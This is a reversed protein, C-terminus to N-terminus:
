LRQPNAERKVQSFYQLYGIVVVCPSRKALQSLITERGWVEDRVLHKEKLQILLRNCLERTLKENRTKWTVMKDNLVEQVTSFLLRFLSFIFIFSVNRFSFIQEDVSLCFSIVLQNLTLYYAQYTNNSFCFLYGRFVLFTLQRGRDFYQYIVRLFCQSHM